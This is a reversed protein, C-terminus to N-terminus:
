KKLLKIKDMYLAMGFSPNNQKQINPSYNTNLGQM